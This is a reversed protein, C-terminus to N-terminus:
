PLTILLLDVGYPFEKQSGLLGESMFLVNSSPGSLHAGSHAQVLRELLPNM